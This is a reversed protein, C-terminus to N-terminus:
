DSGTGDESKAANSIWLILWDITTEKLLAVKYPTILVSLYKNNM